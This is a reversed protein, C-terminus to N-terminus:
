DIAPGTPLPSLTSSSLKILYPATGGNHSLLASWSAFAYKTGGSVWYVTGTSTDVVYNSGAACASLNVDRFISSSYPQSSSITSANQGFDTTMQNTLKYCGNVDMLFISSSGSDYLYRNVVQGAITLNKELQALPFSVLEGWGYHYALYDQESSFAYLKGQSAVYAGSSENAKVPIGDALKVGGGTISNLAGRDIVMIQSTSLGLATFDEMTPIIELQGNEIYYVDKYTNAQVVQALPTGYLPLNSAVNMLSSGLTVSGTIGLGSPVTVRNVKNLLYVNGSGDNVLCPLSSSNSITSVFSDSELQYLPTTQPLNPGNGWCGFTGMSDFQHFTGDSPDFLYIAGETTRVPMPKSALPSGSTITTALNDSFPTAANSPNLSEYKSYDFILQKQGSGVQFTSHSPTFVFSSLNGGDNISEILTDPLYSIQNTNYGFASLQALSTVLYRKGESVLYVAANSPSRVLYATNSSLGSGSAPSPISNIYSQSVSSIARPDFGYDQLQAMSPFAFKYGDWILYVAGGATVTEAGLSNGFYDNYDRWFNRNGYSSCSDGSGYLNNLAAQDPTYPTYNYLGATAENQIYVPDKGCSGNPSYPINNTVGAVYNYNDPNSAYATFQWAANAVQNYLGYYSADCSGGTPCGYGTASKYEGWWPWDDGVLGQEKQITTLIAAASVGYTAQAIYIIQAASCVGLGFSSDSQNVDCAAGSPMSTPGSTGDTNGAVNNQHTSTNEVYQYLCTYPAPYSPDLNARQINPSGAGPAYYRTGNWTGVFYQQGNTDCTPVQAQLFSQIQGVSMAARNYFIGNDIIHGAQFQSGSLASATGGLSTLNVLCVLFGISLGILIRPKRM